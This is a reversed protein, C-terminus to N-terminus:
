RIRAAEPTRCTASVVVVKVIDRLVASNAVVAEIVRGTAWQPDVGFPESIREIEAMAERSVVVVFATQSQNKPALRLGHRHLLGRVRNTTVDDRRFAEAIEPASAGAGALFAARIIESQSYRPVRRRAPPKTTPSRKTQTAM